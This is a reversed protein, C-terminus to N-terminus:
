DQGAIVVGWVKVPVVEGVCGVIGGEEVVGEVVSEMGLVGKGRVVYVEVGVRCCGGGMGRVVEVVVLAGGEGRSGVTTGGWGRGLIGSRERGQVCM